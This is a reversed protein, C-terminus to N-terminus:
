SAAVLIQADLHKQEMGLMIRRVGNDQTSGLFVRDVLLNSHAKQM